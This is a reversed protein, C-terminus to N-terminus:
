VPTKVLRGRRSVISLKESKLIKRAQERAHSSWPGSPDLRVYTLWHRLARRKQDQREYALALNYHADAYHPVLAIARQYAQTADSLRQM